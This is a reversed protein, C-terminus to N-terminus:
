LIQNSIDFNEEKILTTLLGLEESYARDPIIFPRNGKQSQNMKAVTFYRIPIELEL